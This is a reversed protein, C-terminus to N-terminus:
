QVSAQLANVEQVSVRGSIPAVFIQRQITGTGVRLLIGYNPMGFRDFTVDVNTIAVSPEDAKALFLLQCQYPANGLWVVYTQGPKDLSQIGSVKYCQDNTSFTILQSSNTRRAVQRTQEIDQIIRQTAVDLRYNVLSKSYIPSAIAALIGLIMVTVTIEVISVGRRIFQRKFLSVSRM